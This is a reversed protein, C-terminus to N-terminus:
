AGSAQPFEHGSITLVNLRPSLKQSPRPGSISMHCGCNIFFFLQFNTSFALFVTQFRGELGDGSGMIQMRKPVHSAFMEVFAVAALFISKESNKPGSFISFIPPAGKCPVKM